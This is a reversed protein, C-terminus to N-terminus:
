NTSLTKIERISEVIVKTDDILKRNGDVQTKVKGSHKNQLERKNRIKQISNGYETTSNGLHMLTDCNYQYKTTVSKWNSKVNNTVSRKKIVKDIM